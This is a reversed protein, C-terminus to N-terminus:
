KGPAADQKIIWARKWIVFVLGLLGFGPLLFLINEM